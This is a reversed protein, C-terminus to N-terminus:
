RSGSYGLGQEFSNNNAQQQAQQQEQESQNQAQAQDIQNQIDQQTAPNELCTPNPTDPVFGVPCYPLATESSSSGSGGSSSGSRSHGASAIGILVVLATIGVLIRRTWSKNTWSWFSRLPNTKAPPQPAAGQSGGLPPYWKGDNGQWWGPVAHATDNEV